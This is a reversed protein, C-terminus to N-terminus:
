ASDALQFAMSHFKGISVIFTLPLFIFTIWSLRWMSLGLQLSQRSDRIGVSKYMLDSLNVTPQVLDEQISHTLRDYEAPASSLWEISPNDSYDDEEPPVDALERLHQQTEKVLDQHIWMIKDVKLWAAQNVWLEPARSEDAPNEYIKDEMISVHDTAVNLFDEWAFALGRFIDSLIFSTCQAALRSDNVAEERKLYFSLRRWRNEFQNRPQVLCDELRRSASTDFVLVTSTNDMDELDVMDDDQAKMHQRNSSVRVYPNKIDVDPSLRGPPGLNRQVYVSMRQVSADYGHPSRSDEYANLHMVKADLPKKGFGPRCDRRAPATTPYIKLYDFVFATRSISRWPDTQTAFSRGNPFPKGNRQRPKEFRAWKSFGPMGVLENPNSINFKKQLFETAWTANQVHIVRLAAQHVRQSDTYFKKLAALDEFEQSVVAVHRTGGPTPTANHSHKNSLYDIILVRGTPFCDKDWKIHWAVEPAHKSSGPTQQSAKTRNSRHYWRYNPTTEVRPPSPRPKQGKAQKKDGTSSSSKRSGRSERSETSSRSIAIAPPPPTGSM